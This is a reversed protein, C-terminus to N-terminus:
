VEAEASALLIEAREEAMADEGLVIGGPLVRAVEEAGDEHVGAGLVEGVDLM